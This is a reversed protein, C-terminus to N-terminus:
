SAAEAPAGKPEVDGFEDDPEAEDADVEFGELAALLAPSIEDVVRDDPDLGLVALMAQPDSMEEVNFARKYHLGFREAAALIESSGITVTNRATTILLKAFAAGHLLAMHQQIPVSIMGDQAEAVPSLMTSDNDLLTSDNAM